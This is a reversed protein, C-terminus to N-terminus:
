IMSLHVHNTHDSSPDGGARSYRKWGTAPSWFQRYWIVYLVGLRDENRVFFMALNNGYVKDGGTADGGFGNSKIVSFDCARGKPHEFPGGPRFCSVFRKFGLRQAEQMAHLTRPTICGSTTPDKESCSQASFGGSSNRPAPRAVPSTVDVLGGTTQGGVDVLAQNAEKRKKQMIALQKAQQAAEADVAAKTRAVETRAENLRRLKQDDLSTMMEMTSVRALFTDPSSANLMAEVPRLRGTRYAMAAIGSVEQSVEDLRQQVQGLRLQLELQRKKSANYADRAEVFGRNASEILDKVTKPEGEDGTDGGNKAPTGPTGPEALGPAPSVVVSATAAMLFAVVPILWRRATVTSM